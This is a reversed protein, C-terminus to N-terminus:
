LTAGEEKHEFMWEEVKFTPIRKGNCYPELIFSEDRVQKGEFFLVCAGKSFRISHVQDATMTYVSGVEYTREEILWDDPKAEPTVTYEGMGAAQLKSRIFQDGVEDTHPRVKRYTQNTVSGALVLCAFNFRHSHPTIHHQTQRDSRFLRVKGYEGGGVLESTLGPLAYNRVEDHTMRSVAERLVEMPSQLAEDRTKKYPGM